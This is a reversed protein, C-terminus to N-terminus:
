MQMPAAPSGDSWNTVPAVFVTKPELVGTFAIVPSGPANAGWQAPDTRPLFYMLHPRWHGGDDDLYGQKSMMFCMSGIEPPAIRNAAVEAQLRDKVEARTAGALVWRTRELYAPLVSRAAAPNYCIPARVKWNWFQPKDIPNSWAREVICVFGNRGKVATEYGHEGLALVEADASVSPPAASRALAIEAELTASQYRAIPAMEPYADAGRAAGDFSTFIFGVAISLRFVTPM